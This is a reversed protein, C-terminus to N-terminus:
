NVRKHQTRHDFNRTYLALLMRLEVSVVICRRQVFVLEERKRGRGELGQDKLTQAKASEREREFSASNM